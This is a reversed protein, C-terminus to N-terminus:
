KLNEIDFRNYVDLCCSEACEHRDYGQSHTIDPKAWRVFHMGSDYCDSKVKDYLFLGMDEYGCYSCRVGDYVKFHTLHCGGTPWGGDPCSISRFDHEEYFTVINLGNKGCNSCWGKNASPKEIIFLKVRNSGEKLIDNEDKIILEDKNETVLRPYEYESIAFSFMQLALFLILAVNVLKKM